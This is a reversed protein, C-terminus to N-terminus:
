VPPYRCGEAEAALSQLLIQLLTIKDSCHHEDKKFPRVYVYAHVSRLQLKISGGLMSQCVMINTTDVGLM